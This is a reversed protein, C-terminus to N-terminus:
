RDDSQTFNATYVMSTAEATFIAQRGVEVASAEASIETARRFIERLKKM